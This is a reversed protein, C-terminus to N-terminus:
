LGRHRCQHARRARCLPAHLKAKIKAASRLRRSRGYYAVGANLEPDNVAMQNVMGGGWCFGIAGVKGNTREHARPLAVAAVATPSADEGDLKGIM